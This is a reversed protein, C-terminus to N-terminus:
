PGPRAGNQGFNDKLFTFDQVNCVNDGNLDGARQMGMEVQTTGGLLSVTGSAALHAPGKVRWNYIGQPLTGVSITFFGSADTVQYGPFDVQTVGSKLTLTLPQIQSTNPQAAHGQWTVHGVLLAAPTSTSTPTASNTPTPVSTPTRTATRTPTSSPGFALEANARIVWNGSLYYGVNDILSLFVNNGLDNYDPDSGDVNAAVWSRLQSNDRDIPHPYSYPTSGGRDYTNSFGVYVDGPGSLPM